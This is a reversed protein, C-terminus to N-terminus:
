SGQHFQVNFFGKISMGLCHQLASAWALAVSTAVAYAKTDVALAVRQNISGRWM